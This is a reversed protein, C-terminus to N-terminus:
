LHLILGHGFLSFGSTAIGAVFAASIGVLLGTAAVTRVKDVRRVLVRDVDALAIARNEIDVTGYITDSRVLLPREKDFQLHEGGKLTVGFIRRGLVSDAAEDLSSASVSRAGGGAGRPAVLLEQVRSRPISYPRGERSAFVTDREIRPAPAQDFVLTQGDSVTVGRLELGPAGLDEPKLDAPRIGAQKYFTCAGLWPIAVLLMLANARKVM